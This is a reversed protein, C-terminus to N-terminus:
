IIFIGLLQINLQTEQNPIFLLFIICFLFTLFMSIGGLSPKHNPNFREQSETKMRIGFTEYFRILIHNFLLSFCFSIIILIAIYFHYDFQM